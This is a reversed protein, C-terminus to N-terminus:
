DEVIIHTEGKKRSRVQGIVAHSLASDQLVKMVDEEAEEAVSILLGGSTQPDYLVGDIGPKQCRFELKGRCFNANRGGGGCTYGQASLSLVEPLLPLRSAFLTAQHDYGLMELLHGALGFGTVDTLAHVGRIKGLDAGERNLHLMAELAKERSEKPAHNSKGATVLIGNGLPKTLLLLDGDQPSNNLLVHDPHGVGTVSLGYLVGSNYISHGGALTAGAELVVDNGGRLIEGLIELDGDQPFGVINLATVPRGGMAYIDSLSNTAAVRGFLYPDDMMPPFFDLTQIIVTDESVRYVAADDSAQFGVM